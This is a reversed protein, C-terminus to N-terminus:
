EKAELVSDRGSLILSNECMRLAISIVDGPFLHLEEALRKLRCETDNDMWIQKLYQTKSNM